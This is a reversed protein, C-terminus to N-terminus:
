GEFPEAAIRTRLTALDAENGGGVVAAVVAQVEERTVKVDEATLAVRPHADLERLTGVALLFPIAWAAVRNGDHEPLTELYAEADDLYGRATDATERVVAAAGERNEPDLVEEQEVGHADLREAPLYVNNEEAYDDHVDKAINVHQLLQGFSESNERLTEETEPDLDARCVLNTILEGVTGAAYHCYRELEDHTKLRLGGTEAYRAVFREMGSVLERVPGRVARKVPVPQARFARFVAPTERVVRWDADPNEPMWEEAANRFTEPEADAEPDLVAEYLALLEAQAGAPIHGADEITDPIRCLLYGVCIYTAMPEALVQITLAFTRSVDQVVDHCWSLAAETRRGDSASSM